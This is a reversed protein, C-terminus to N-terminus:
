RKKGQAEKEMRKLHARLTTYHIGLIDSASGPGSVKGHTHVMVKQIYNETLTKLTPWDSSPLTDFADSGLSDDPLEFNLCADGENYNIIAREIVYRLERINGPWSYHYFSEIDKRSLKPCVKENKKAYTDIFFHTLPLIDKKRERLPPVYIPYPILRYYLDKRFTGERVMQALNKNTAAIIRINLQLLSSSGIRRVTQTELFRLLKVQATMSLEGIEDLFITGKDALEFLGRRSSHADTFAGKEHGFLESDILSESIAGCNAKLFPATNRKSLMHLTDAVIEKGVGTEGIILVTTDTPAVKEIKEQVPALDECLIMLERGTHDQPKSVLYSANLVSLGTAQIEKAM